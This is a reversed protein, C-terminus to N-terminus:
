VASAVTRRELIMAGGGFLVVLAAVLWGIFPLSMALSVVLVGLGMRAWPSAPEPQQRRDLLWGGIGYAVFVASLVLVIASAALLLVALPIGVITVALLGVVVPTIVLWLLGTLVSRGLRGRMTIAVRNAWRPSLGVAAAGLIMLSLFLFLWVWPWTTWTGGSDTRPEHRVSGLVQATPAISPARPSSVILDGRIVADPLVEVSGARAHVTGGVEGGIAATAAGIELNREVRGTMVVRNGALRADQGITADAEVRVTRGAAMVNHAVDSSVDVTEGAAWLDNGVPGDISVHRGASMVYGSVPAAISVDAGAAAVDGDVSADVRVHEGATLVDGGTSQSANSPAANPVTLSEQTYVLMTTCVIMALTGASLRIPSLMM